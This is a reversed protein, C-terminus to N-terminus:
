EFRLITLNKRRCFATLLQQEKVTLSHKNILLINIHGMTMLRRILSCVDSACFGHIDINRNAAFCIAKEKLADVQNLDQIHCYVFADLQHKNTM